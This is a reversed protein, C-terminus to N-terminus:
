AGWLGSAAVLAVLEKAGSAGVAQAMRKLRYKVGGVTLFTKGAVSEYTEGALLLSLIALDTADCLHLLKEVAVLPAIERDTYFGTGCPPAAALPGDTLFPRNQTTERVILRMKLNVQAFSVSKNKLLLPALDVAVRGFAAYDVAMSTIAPSCRGALLTDSFSVLFLEALKQPHSKKLASVLSIAAYDNTCIVSDYRDIHACFAKRCSKLDDFNEYVDGMRGFCARKKIDSISTPNVGYLATRTKGYSRLYATIHRMASEIDQCINTVPLAYPRGSLLMVPADGGTRLAAVAPEIWTSSTGILLLVDGGHVAFGGSPDEGHYVTHIRKQKACALVGARIEDCWTSRDYGPETFIHLIM